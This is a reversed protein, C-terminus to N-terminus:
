DRASAVPVILVDCRAGSLVKRAVRGLLVRSLSGGTGRAGLGILEVEHRRSLRTLVDGPRGEVVRSRAARGLGEGPPLAALLQRRAVQLRARRYDRVEDPDTGARLMAREFGPPISVAHVLDIRAGRALRSVMMAAQLSLDSFDLGVVVRRYDAGAPRRVVLLPCPSARVLHDATSGFMRERLNGPRGPGIVLLDAAHRGALDAIQSHPAGPTVVAEGALGAADLMARMRAQADSILIDAVLAPDAPPPPLTSIDPMEVVHLLVLRAQHLRALRIARAAVDDDGDLMLAALVTKMDTFGKRQMTAGPATRIGARGQGALRHWM